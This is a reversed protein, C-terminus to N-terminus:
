LSIYEAIRRFVPFCYYVLEKSLFLLLLVVVFFVFVVVVFGFFLLLFGPLFLSFLLFASRVFSVNLDRKRGMIKGPALM